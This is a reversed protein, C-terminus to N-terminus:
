DGLRPSDAASEKQKDSQGSVSRFMPVMSLISHIDMKGGRAVRVLGAIFAGAIILLMPKALLFAGLVGLIAASGTGLWQSSAVGIAVHEKRLQPFLTPDGVDPVRSRFVTLPAGNKAGTEAVPRKFHGEIQTGAFTVSAINEADLQNLFDSYRITTPGSGMGMVGYVALAVLVVGVIWVPPRKYWPRMRHPLAVDTM